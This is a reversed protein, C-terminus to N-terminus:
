FVNFLAARKKKESREKESANKKLVIANREVAKKAKQQMVYTANREIFLKQATASLESFNDLLRQAAKGGGFHIMRVAHGPIIVEDRTVAPRDQIMSKEWIHANSLKVHFTQPNAEILNGSYIEKGTSEVTVSMAEDKKLCSQLYNILSFACKKSRDPESTKRYNEKEVRKTKGTHSNSKM